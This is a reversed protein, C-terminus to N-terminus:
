LKRQFRSKVRQFKINGIMKALDDEFGKMGAMQKPCGRSKFFPQQPREEDPNQSCESGPNNKMEEEYFIAKWRMRKLVSEVKETLLIKYRQKTTIPINKMSYGFDIPDM